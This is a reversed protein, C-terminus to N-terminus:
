SAEKPKACGKVLSLLGHVLGAPMFIMITAMTLGYILLKYDDFAGLLTPLITVLVAGFLAGWVSRMSGIIVIIVLEISLDFGFATANFSRLSFAFLAGALGAMGAAISFAMTKYQATAIASGRAAAESTKLALLARGFRSHVLNIVIWTTLVLFLGSIVYMWKVSGMAIGFVSFARVSIGPDMGGTVERLQGFLIVMVVGFALSAMALSNGSLRLLPRAILWGALASLLVAAFVALLPEVGAREVLLSATYAGIGFFAAQGFSIQGAMGFLLFLGLSAIAYIITTTISTLYFSNSVSAGIVALVIVLMVLGVM